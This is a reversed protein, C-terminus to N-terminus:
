RRKLYAHELKYHQFAQSFNGDLFDRALEPPADVEQMQHGEPLNFRDVAYSGNNQVTAVSVMAGVIEGEPNVIVSMKM